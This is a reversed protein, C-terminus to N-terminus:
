AAADMPRTKMVTKSLFQFTMNSLARSSMKNPVLRAAVETGMKLRPKAV